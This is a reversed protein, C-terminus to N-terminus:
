TRTVTSLRNSSDYVCTITAVTTGGSGGTKYVVQDIEGIGNGTTRYTTINYDYAFPVFSGASKTNLTSLTTETAAGSPLASSSVVVAGTNVATVKANLASLTTETAAGTPLSVTGSVNNINWTGSQTAQVAFTGTGVVTANLSAATAQTVAVSTLPTLTSLQAATLVVPVSAAALAQGLAPTKGDISSLSSNGTTQNAATSAGSPLPLSAASVPQTVGSGDVLLRTSTVTLNAPINATNTVISSLSTQATVQNASTAAGSPLPLSAASVPQTVGSGDVLLRTSTVTLNAPINATNTVISSLSSNATTQNAATSAGSPLPLSAASVPQTVASNDVKLGNVTTTLKGDISSLSSNATTQNASTAAGSPLASSSVVVAGTNVATIKGNITSLTSETAAGTPLASSSVVVAGTNVATVKSNLSSLTAETSAGTPLASSVVTVNDTDAKLVKSDISNLAAIELAQNASTAAGGPLASSAPPYLFQAM